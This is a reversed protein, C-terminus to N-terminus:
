LFSGNEDRDKDFRIMLLDPEVRILNSEEWVRLNKEFEIMKWGRTRILKLIRFFYSFM